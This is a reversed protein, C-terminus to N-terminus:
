SGGRVTFIGDGIEIKDGPKLRAPADIEIGNYLTGNTSDLDTLLWEEKPSLTIEAHERSAEESKIQIDCRNSRGLKMGNTLLFKDGEIPGSVVELFMVLHQRVERLTAQESLELKEALPSHCLLCDSLRSYNSAGCHPCKRLTIPEM